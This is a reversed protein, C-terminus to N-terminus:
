NTVSSRYKLIVVHGMMMVKWTLDTRFQYKARHADERHWEYNYNLIPLLCGSFLSSTCFSWIRICNIVENSPSRLIANDIHNDYRYMPAFIIFHRHIWKSILFFLSTLIISVYSISSFLRRYLNRLIMILLEFFQVTRIWLIIQTDKSSIEFM